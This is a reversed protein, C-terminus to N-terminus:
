GLAKVHNNDYEVTRSRLRRRAPITLAWGALLYAVSLLAVAIWDVVRKGARLWAEWARALRV